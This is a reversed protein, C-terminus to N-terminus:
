HSSNLRTSKRDGGAGIWARGVSGPILEGVAWEGIPEIPFEQLGSSGPLESASDYYASGEGSFVMEHFDGNVSVLLQDVSVGAACRQIATSPDWYDLITLSKLHSGLRYTICRGVASGEGADAPMPCNVVVTHDDLISDVFRIESGVSIAQGISLGHPASMTVTLGSSISTIINPVSAQVEGGMVAQLAADLEPVGSLADWGTLYTSFQVTTHERGNNPAGVFTRGGSKDLRQSAERVSRIDLKSLPLRHSTTIAAVAGLESELAAYSRNAYSAIHCSM